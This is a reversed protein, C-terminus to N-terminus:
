FHGLKHTLKKPLMDFPVIKTKNKIIDAFLDHWKGRGWQCRKRTGM